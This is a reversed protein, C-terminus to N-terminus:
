FAVEEKRKEILARAFRLGNMYAARATLTGMSEKHRDLDWVRAIEADIRDLIEQDTM